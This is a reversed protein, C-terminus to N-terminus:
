FVNAGKSVGRRCEDNGLVEHFRLRGTRVEWWNGSTTRSLSQAMSAVPGRIECLLNTYSTSRALQDDKDTVPPFYSRTFYSFHPNERQGGDGFIVLELWQNSPLEELAPLIGRGADRYLQLRSRM